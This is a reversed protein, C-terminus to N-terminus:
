YASGKLKVFRKINFITTKIHLHNQATQLNNGWLRLIGKKGKLYGNIGESVPFRKSYRNQNEEDLFSNTLKYMYESIPETYRAVSCKKGYKLLYPCGSCDECKHIHNKKVLEEILDEKKNDKCNSDKVAILKIIHGYPCIYGNIIRICDTISIDDLEEDTKKKCSSKSKKKGKKSDKNTFLTNRKRLEKNIQTSLKKPIVMFNFESKICTERNKDDDYGSDCWTKSKFFIKKLEAPNEREGFKKQLDILIELNHEFHETLEELTGFDNPKRLLASSLAINNSSMLEQVNLGVDWKGRKSKIKTGEPFNVPVYPKNSDVLAEEFKDIKSFVYKNYLKIRKLILGILRTIKPNNKYMRLKCKVRATVKRMQSDSLDHILNWKNMLKLAEIEDEHILYNVSANVLADTGDLYNDGTYELFYYDILPLLSAMELKLFTENEDDKMFNSLTSASPPGEPALVKFVDDTIALDHIEDTNDVGRIEGFYILGLCQLRPFAHRGLESNFKSDAEDTIGIVAPTFM